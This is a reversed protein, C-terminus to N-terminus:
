AVPRELQRIATMIEDAARQYLEKVRARDATAAEARLAAFNLPTGYRVAVPSPM